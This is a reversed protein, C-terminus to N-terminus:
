HSQYHAPIRPPMDRLDAFAEDLTEARARRRVQRRRDDINYTEHTYAADADGERPLLRDGAAIFHDAWVDACPDLLRHGNPSTVARTSRAGNCFRCAYYCNAYENELAHDVSRLIRHEITTLGQREVGFETLDAEHLLCFACTFGFDWRLCARYSKYAGPRPAHRRKVPADPPATRTPLIKM